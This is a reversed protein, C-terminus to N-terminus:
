HRGYYCHVILSRVMILDHKARHVTRCAQATHCASCCTLTSPLLRDAAAHLVGGLRMVENCCVTSMRQVIFVISCKGLIQKNRESTIIIHCILIILVNM